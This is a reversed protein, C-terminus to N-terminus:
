SIEEPPTEVFLLTSDEKCVLEIDGEDRFGYGDRSKLMQEGAIETLGKLVYVFVPDNPTYRFYTYESGATFRGISIWSNQKLKSLPLDSRPCALLHLKEGDNPLAARCIAPNTNIRPPNLWLQLFNIVDNESHNSISMEIGKGCSVHLFEDPGFTHMNGLNDSFTLSGSLPIYMIEMNHFTHPEMGKGNMLFDDNLVRISGFGKRDPKYFRGSNFTHYSSIWGANSLWRCNSKYYTNIKIEQNESRCTM